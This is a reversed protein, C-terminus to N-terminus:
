PLVESPISSERCPQVGNGSEKQTCPVARRKYHPRPKCMNEWGQQSWKPKRGTLEHKLHERNESFLQLNEPSNNARNGDKHHVVESPFLYRGIMKEMVLRHELVYGSKKAFPHDPILIDKYGDNNIRFGRKWAGCKKGPRTYPFEGQFGQKRLWIRITAAKAGTEKRIENLYFGENAMKLILDRYYECRSIKYHRKGPVFPCTM